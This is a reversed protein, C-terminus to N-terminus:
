QGLPKVTCDPRFDNPEITTPSNSNPDRGMATDLRESQAQTMVRVKGKWKDGPQLKEQELEIVRQQLVKIQDEAPHTVPAVNPMPLQVNQKQVVSEVFSQVLIESRNLEKAVKKHSFNKKGMKALIQEKEVNSLKGKKMQEEM